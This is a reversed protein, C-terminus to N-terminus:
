TGEGKHGKHGKHHIEEGEGEAPGLVSVSLAGTYADQYVVTRVGFVSELHEPTLVEAPTGEAVIRGGSMLALRDCYRAALHLDHIAAIATCGTGVLAKVLNLVRLQHLIDLNSTPEDLLFLAPEQALARAIMVRQREGGSLTSLTRQTYPETETRRMAERAQEFDRPGESQFRGMRAYRGMLVVELATFGGTTSPTQHVMAMAQAIQEPNLGALDAGQLVVSGSEQRLLGALTRLLTTKGSGNPGILGVLTGKGASLSVQDLLRVADAQVVLDAAALAADKSGDNRPTSAARRPLRLSRSSGLKDNGVLKTM